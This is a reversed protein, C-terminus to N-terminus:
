AAYFLEHAPQWHTLICGRRFGPNAAVFPHHEYTRILEQVHWSAIAHQCERAQEAVVILAIPNPESPLTGQEWAGPPLKDVLVNSRVHATAELIALLGDVSLYLQCDFM